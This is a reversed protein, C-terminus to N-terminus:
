TEPNVDHRAKPDKNLIEMDKAELVPRLEVGKFWIVWGGFRM